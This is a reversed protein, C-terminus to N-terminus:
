YYGDHTGDNGFDVYYAWNGPRGPTAFPTSNRYATGTGLGPIIRLNVEWDGDNDTGTPQIYYYRVAGSTWDDGGDYWDTTFPNWDGDEGRKIRYSGTGAWSQFQVKCDDNTDYQTDTENWVRVKFGWTLSQRFDSLHINDSPQNSQYNPSNVYDYHLGRLHEMGLNEKVATYGPHSTLQDHINGYSINVLEEKIHRNSYQSSM